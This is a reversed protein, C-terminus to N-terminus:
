VSTERASLVFDANALEILHASVEDCTPHGDDTPPSANGTSGACGGLLLFALALAMPVRSVSSSYVLRMRLM